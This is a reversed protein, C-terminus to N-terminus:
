LLGYICIPSHQDLKGKAQTAIADQMAQNALTRRNFSPKATRIMHM